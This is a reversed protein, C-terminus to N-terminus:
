EAMQVENKVQVGATTETIFQKLTDMQKKDFVFGAIHVEGKAPNDAIPRENVYVAGFADAQRLKARLADVAQIVAQDRVKPTEPSGGGGSGGLLYVGAFVVLLLALLGFLMIRRGEPSKADFTRLSYAAQEKWRNLNYVLDDKFAM